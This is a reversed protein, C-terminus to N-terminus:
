KCHVWSIVLFGVGFQRERVEYGMATLAAVVDKMMRPSCPVEISWNGEEAARTILTEISKVAKALPSNERSIKAADAAFLTTPTNLEM